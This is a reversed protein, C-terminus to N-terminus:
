AFRPAYHAALFRQILKFRAASQRDSRCSPSRSRCGLAYEQDDDPYEPRARGRGGSQINLTPAALRRLRQEDFRIQEDSMRWLTLRPFIVSLGAVWRGWGLRDGKALAFVRADKLPVLFEERAILGGLNVPRWKRGRFKPRFRRKLKVRGSSKRCQPMRRLRADHSELRGSDPICSTGNKM